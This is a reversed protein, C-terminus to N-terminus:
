SSVFASRPLVSMASKLTGPTLGLVASMKKLTFRIDMARAAAAAAVAALTHASRSGLGCRPVVGTALAWAHRKLAKCLLPSPPDSAAGLIRDCARLVGQSAAADMTACLHVHHSTGRLDRELTRLGRRVASIDVGCGAAVEGESRAVGCAVLAVFIAAPALDPGARPVGSLVRVAEAVSSDALRMGTAMARVSKAAARLSRSGGGDEDESCPLTRRPAGGRPRPRTADAPAHSHAHAHAQAHAHTDGRSGYSSISCFNDVDLVLGCRTCIVDGTCSDHVTDLHQCM